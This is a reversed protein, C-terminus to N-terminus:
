TGDRDSAAATAPVGLNLVFGIIEEPKKVRVVRVPPSVVMKGESIDDKMELDSEQLKKSARLTELASIPRMSFFVHIRDGTRTSDFPVGKGTPILVEKHAQVKVPESTQEAPPTPRQGRKTRAPPSAAAPSRPPFLMVTGKLGSRFVYLYGNVNPEFRFKYHDGKSFTHDFPEPDGFEKDRPGKVVLQSKVGIIPDPIVIKDGEKISNPDETENFKALDPGLTSDGMMKEAVKDFTDDHAFTYSTTDPDTGDKRLKVGSWPFAGFHEGKLTLPPPPEPKKIEPLPPTEPDSQRPIIACGSFFVWTLCTLTLLAGALSRKM